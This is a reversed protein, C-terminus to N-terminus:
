LFGRDELATFILDKVKDTVEAGSSSINWAEHAITAAKDPSLLQEIADGLEEANRVRRSANAATLRAYAQRFNEVRPGHVIASGLAAAEYPNVGGGPGLSRGLFSIPALRYWLGMEGKTDAIYIQVETGSAEDRSRLAVNFGGERLRDAWEAGEAPQDPVVVLLLRLQVTVLTLSAGVAALLVTVVFSSM